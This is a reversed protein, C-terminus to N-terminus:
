NDIRGQLLKTTPTPKSAVACDDALGTRVPPSAHTDSVPRCKQCAAMWADVSLKGAGGFLLPMFMMLYLLPLKYNGHGHDTVSYGQLLESFSSWESPWHVTAIAVVTIVMLALSFFRTALGLMLAVAGVTEFGTALWWNIEPSLLNFPFPFSADAFWNEGHLKMIGAEGFEYALTLRLFLPPLVDTRERLWTTLKRYGTGNRSPTLLWILAHAPCVPCSESRTQNTTRSESLDNM